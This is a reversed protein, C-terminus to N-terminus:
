DNAMGRQLCTGKWHERPAPGRHEQSQGRLWREERRRVPVTLCAM